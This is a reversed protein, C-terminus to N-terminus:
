GGSIEGIPISRDILIAKARAIQKCETEIGNTCGKKTVSPDLTIVRSYIGNSKLLESARMAYTLSPLALACMNNRKGM